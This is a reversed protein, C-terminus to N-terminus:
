RPATGNYMALATELTHRMHKRLYAPALVEIDAANSLLFLRLGQTDMVTCELTGGQADASVVQHEDLPNETLRNHLNPSLRLQLHIAADGHITMLDKQVAISGADFDPQDPINLFTTRVGLMRHLMLACTKGPGNSSYKGRPTGPEPEHGEPWTESAVYATLYVNSDQYSLMLPKLHYTCHVDGVNRPRYVVELDQDAMMAGQITALHETAYNGPQLVTFRTGTTIRGEAVLNRTAHTRIASAAYDRLKTLQETRTRFGFRDAHQFIATLTMSEAPSLALDFSGRGLKWYKSKPTPSVAQAVLTAATLAKLDLRTTKIHYDTDHWRTVAAHLDATSMPVGERQLIKRLALRREEYHIETYTRQGALSMVM